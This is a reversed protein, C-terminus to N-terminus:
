INVNKDMNLLEERSLGKGRKYKVPMKAVKETM